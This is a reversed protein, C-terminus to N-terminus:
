SKSERKLNKIPLRKMAEVSSAPLQKIYHAQTTTVSSHRLIAQVTIDPVGLAYLTTGLGRRLAHWGHWAVGSGQLASKISKSGLTALDFPRNNPGEFVYVTGPNQKHHEALANRVVPLLPIPATRARTKTEGQISHWVTRRVNLQNAEIDDWQLGRLEALSLGTYAAVTVATHATGKLVKLMEEIEGLSYAYTSETSPQGKPVITGQLPNASDLIGIRKAYSFVGSLFSKVHLLSRHSLGTNAAITDLLRQADVTRFSLLRIGAARPAVQANYLNIYGKYTSPRKHEKAYPLYSHEIFHQLTQPGGPSRGENLPQLIEDALSRVSRLTRFQDSYACLRQSKQKGDATRYRVHWAGHRQFIQGKQM